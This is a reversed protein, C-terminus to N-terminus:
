VLFRAHRFGSLPGQGGLSKAFGAVGFLRGMGEPHAIARFAAALAAADRSGELRRLDNELVGVAFHHQDVVGLCELGAAPASSTLETWNVHATIDQQGPAELVDAVMRHRRYARITGDTRAADYYAEAALGYDFALIVGSSLAAAASRLWPRLGDHIETAYGEIEPLAIRAVMGALEGSVEEGEAWHFRDGRWVVRMERWAGRSFRVRAVPLADLLENCFFVGEGPTAALEDLSVAHALKEGAGGAELTARQRERWHGLPEVIMCRAAAYLGPAFERCWGLVDAALRGDHAGQEIVAFPEPRGMRAWVEHIQQALIHGFLRSVSVSTLFHGERGIGAVPGAYFGEAPDYLCLEMFRRFTVGRAGGEDRIRRALTPGRGEGSM